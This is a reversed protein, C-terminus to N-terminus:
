ETHNSNLRTRERAPEAAGRVLFPGGGLGVALSEVPIIRHDRGFMLVPRAERRHSHLENGFIGVLARGLACADLDVRAGDLIEAGPNDLRLDAGQRRPDGRGANDVSRFLPTYPFLTATRTARTPRRIM